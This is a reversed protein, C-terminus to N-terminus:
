DTLKFAVQWRVKVEGGQGNCKLMRAGNLAPSDFLPNSSKVVSPNRVEGNPGVVFELLVGGSDIGQRKAREPYEIKGVISRVNPCAVAVNQVVPAPEPAPAPPAPPPPPAPPVVATAVTIPAQQPPPPQEIRVEPPPVFPPPPAEMKPSPPPEEPPPPTHTEEIIQAELPPRVIDVVRRALGTVLAYVILIHLAIVFLVGSIHKIPNRQQRAFDM